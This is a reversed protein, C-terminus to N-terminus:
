KQNMWTILAGLSMENENNGKSSGETWRKGGWLDSKRRNAGPVPRVAPGRSPPKTQGLKKMEKHMLSPDRMARQKHANPNYDIEVPEMKRTESNYLKGTVIYKAVGTWFPDMRDGSRRETNNSAQWTGFSAARRAAEAKEPVYPVYDDEESVGQMGTLDILFPDREESLASPFILNNPIEPVIRHESSM